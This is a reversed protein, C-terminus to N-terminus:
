GNLDMRWSGKPYEGDISLLWYGGTWKYQIGTNLNTTYVIENSESADFVTVWAIGNWEIIDNENGIFDTGDNNKWADPGDINSTNGIDNLLLIRVGSTKIDTPNRKQPDIIYDISTWSNSNRAPGEIVTDNPFSDADWNVILQTEDLENHTITGTYVSNTDINTLYIRSIDAQYTGSVNDLVNRWNTTGIQNKSILRLINSDVYVGLDAYNTSFVTAGTGTDTKIDDETVNTRGPVPVDDYANIQPQTLGLDITGQEENFVSTIIDTIVGLRKVKVPPSIYIPTSFQLTAVDIDSDVGVPISRSSFTTGELHVVSLSTWDIYNDTTQIEFSPNFLTLIQELIQLKQETNTSWIDVNLTLTYPTPMLREVTYNKGQVNLYENGNEDYAKERINLKNVYSSDSTRSRDMELGTVYVAMRPASPIKNESNDRIINAVQRTMDGYLVPVQTLNGRGDQYSFNSMLRVMQTIYRRIQGDYFFQM